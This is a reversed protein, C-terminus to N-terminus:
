LFAKLKLCQNLVKNSDEFKFPSIYVLSIDMMTAEKCFYYINNDCGVIYHNKKVWYHTIINDIFNNVYVIALHSNNNSSNCAYHEEGEEILSKIMPVKCIPCIM